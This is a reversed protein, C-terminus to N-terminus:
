SPLPIARWNWEGQVLDVTLVGGELADMGILMEDRSTTAGSDIIAVLKRSTRRELHAVRVSALVERAEIRGRAM